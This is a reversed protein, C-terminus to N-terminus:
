LIGFSFLTIWRNNSILLIIMIASVFYLSLFHMFFYVATNRRIIFTILPIILLLPFLPYTNVETFDVKTKKWDSIEWYWIAKIDNFFYTRELYIKPQHFMANAEYPPIYLSNGQKTIVNVVKDHVVGSYTKNLDGDTILDKELTKTLVVKDLTFLLSLSTCLIMVIIFTIRYWGKNIKNYYTQTIHEERRKLYEYRQKAFRIREKLLEEDTYSRYSASQFDRYNYQRASNTQRDSAQNRVPKRDLYDLLQDYAETIEIFKLAATPSPNKDPHYKLALKRYAKKIVSKDKTVPIELLEFYNKQM